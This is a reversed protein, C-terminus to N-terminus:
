ASLRYVRAANGGFIAAQAATSFSAFYDSFVRMVGAYDAALKCMPWDSGILLRECGFAEVAVDLYPL